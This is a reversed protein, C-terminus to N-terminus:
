LFKERISVGCLNLLRAADSHRRQPRSCVVACPAFASRPTYSSLLGPALYGLAAGSPQWGATCNSSLWLLCIGQIISVCVASM